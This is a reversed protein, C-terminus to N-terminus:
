HRKQIKLVGSSFAEFPKKGWASLCMNACHRDPPFIQVNQMGMEMNMAKDMDMDMIDMDMDMDMGMDMGLDSNM